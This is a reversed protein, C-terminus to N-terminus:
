SRPLFKLGSPLPFQLTILGGRKQGLLKNLLSRLVSGPNNLPLTFTFPKTMMPTTGFISRLTKKHRLLKQGFFGFLQGGRKIKTKISPESWGNTQLFHEVDDSL